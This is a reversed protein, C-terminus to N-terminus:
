SRCDGRAWYLWWCAGREGEREQGVRLGSDIAVEVDVVHGLVRICALATAHSGHHYGAPRMCCPISFTCGIGTQNRIFWARATVVLLQVAQM